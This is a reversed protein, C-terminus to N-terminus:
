IKPLVFVALGNLPCQLMGKKGVEFYGNKTEKFLSLLTKVPYRNAFKTDGGDELAEATDAFTHKFTDNNVDFLQFSVGEDTSVITVHDAGMAAQGKQLLVVAEPPFNVRVKMVDNIQRPAKVTAPNATRYEIKTGTAKMTLARAWPNAATDDVVTADMTFKDQTVAIGYRAMLVDIRNLGVSGFPM